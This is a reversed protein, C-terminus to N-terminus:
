PVLNHNRRAERLLPACEYLRQAVHRILVKRPACYPDPSGFRGHLTFVMNSCGGGCMELYDCTLCDPAPRTMRQFTHFPQSRAIDVLATDRINGLCQRLDGIYYDCPYLNGLQDCALHATCHPKLICPAEARGMLLNMLGQFLNVEWPRPELDFRMDFLRHLLVGLGDMDIPPEKPQHWLLELSVAQPELQQLFRFLETARSIHQRTLTTTVSFPVGRSQLLGIGRRVRHFSGREEADVRNADHISPPGDISVCIKSRSDHLLQVWEHSLLVGNTQIVNTVRLGAPAAQALVQFLQQYFTVGRLLPEGGHYVITVGPLSHVEAAQVFRLLIERALEVDMFAPGAAPQARSYCYRCSLNCERAVKLVLTDHM